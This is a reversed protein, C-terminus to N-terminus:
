IMIASRNKKKAAALNEKKIRQTEKRMRKAEEKKDKKAKQRLEVLNPYKQRAFAVALNFNRTEEEMKLQQEREYEARKLRHREEEEDKETDFFLSAYEELAVLEEASIAQLSHQMAWDGDIKGTIDCEINENQYFVSDHSCHPATEHLFAANHATKEVETQDCEQLIKELVDDHQNGQDENDISQCIDQFTEFDDDQQYATVPPGYTNDVHQTDLDFSIKRPRKAAPADMFLNDENCLPPLLDDLELFATPCARKKTNM